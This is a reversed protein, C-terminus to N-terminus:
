EPTLHMVASCCLSPFPLSHHKPTLANHYIAPVNMQIGPARRAFM